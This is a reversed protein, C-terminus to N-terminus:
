EGLWIWRVGDIAILGDTGVNSIEVEAPVGAKFVFEGIGTWPFPTTKERQNLTVDSNGGAHSVKVPTNTAQTKLPRFGVCVRYRGSQPLTATFKGSVPAKVGRLSIDQQSGPGYFVDPTRKGGPLVIEPYAGKWKGTLEADFEDIIVDSHQAAGVPVEVTVLRRLGAKDEVLLSVLHNKGSQFTHKASETTADVTGDGEFDWWVKTIPEKLDGSKISFTVSDGPRVKAPTAVIEVQPMYGADLVAGEKTLISRLKEVDVDQVTSNGTIALHAANGAAQGLMMYVPEMRLSAYAVHTASICVPVLLNGPDPPTICDYPIDYNDVSVHRTREVVPVKKHTILQVIHCDIGYSGACIGRAKFREQTLDNERLVYNSVMRRGERVYLQFPFHGNDAFEDKPLGWKMADERFAAPLEPDNQLYYLLSLFYDRHKAAMRDRTEWDGEAYGEAGGRLDCWNTDLKENPGAKRDANVYLAAFTTIGQTLIRKGYTESWPAPDYNEPKPFLVRNGTNPTISVRYNYAQTRHDGMGRIQDPGMNIGALTEGFEARSERGVRYPVLAGAMLDGEYSADIFVKGSFTRTTKGQLDDVTLSTVKGGDQTVSRYRHQRWIRIKPQEKLMAEFTAQAIHPEFKLGDHCTAVQKSDAGYTDLYHKTVRKLFDDALGGVTARDGIDTDVLGGSVMGGVHANIDILAVDHGQRAAAIAASIGAPTGGYVVVDASEGALSRLSVVLSLLVIRNM